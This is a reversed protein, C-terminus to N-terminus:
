LDPADHGHGFSVRNRQDGDHHGLRTRAFGEHLNLRTADAVGVEVVALAADVVLEREQETVLGGAHDLRDPGIDRRHLGAVEDDEVPAGHAALAPRAPPPPRPVAEVGVVGGLLHGEGIARGEGGGQADSGKGLLCQHRGALAGLHVGRGTGLRDAQEAAAHHGPQADAMNVPSTPGPSETATKPQPPTPQAAM